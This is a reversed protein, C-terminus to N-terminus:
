FQFSLKSHVSFKPPLLWPEGVSLKVRSSYYIIAKVRGSQEKMEKSLLYSIFSIDFTFTWVWNLIFFFYDLLNLFLQLMKQLVGWTVLRDWVFVRNGAKSGRGPQNIGLMMWGLKKSGLSDNIYVGDSPTAVNAKAWLSYQLSHYVSQQLCQKRCCLSEGATRPPSGCFTHTFPSFPLPPSNFM